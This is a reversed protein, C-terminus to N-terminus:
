YITKFHLKISNSIKLKFFDGKNNSLHIGIIRSFIFFLNLVLAKNLMRNNLPATKTLPNAISLIFYVILSIRFFHSYIIPLSSREKSM